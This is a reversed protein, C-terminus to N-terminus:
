ASRSADVQKELILRDLNDYERYTALSETIEKGYFNKYCSLRGLSDYAFTIKSYNARNSELTIRAM